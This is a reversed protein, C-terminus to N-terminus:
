RVIFRGTSGDSLKVFYMGQRFNAVERFEVINSTAVKEVMKQGLANYIAVKGKSEGINVTVGRSMNKEVITPYVKASTSLKPSVATPTLLTANTETYLYVSDVYLDGDHKGGQFGISYKSNALFNPFTIDVTYWKGVTTLPLQWDSAGILEPTNSNSGEANKPYGNNVDEFIFDIAMDASAKAKFKLKYTQTPDPIFQQSLAIDWRNTSTVMNMKCWSDEVVFGAGAGPNAGWNLLGTVGTYANEGNVGLEFNSNKLVSIEQETIIQGSVTITIEQSAAGEFDDVPIARVKVTGDRKATVLGTASISVVPLTGDTVSTETVVFKFAQTHDAPTVDAVLQITGNDTTITTSPASLAISEILITAGGDLTLYGVADMNSWSEAGGVADNAWVARQHTTGAADRDIVTVDFGLSAGVDFTNGNLDPISTWPVFTEVHYATGDVKYSWVVDGGEVTVTEPTGDVLAEVPKRTVQWNGAKGSGGGGDTLVPNTDFYIEVKDYTWDAAASTLYWPDWDDDNVVVLVYMGEDSWLAQWYTDGEAGVTPTNTGNFPKSINHKEIVRTTSNWVDDIVGDITPATGDVKLILAEPRQAMVMTCMLASLFFTFLKKM